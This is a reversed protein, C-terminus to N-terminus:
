HKQRENQADDGAGENALDLQRDETRAATNELGMWFMRHTKGHMERPAQRKASNTNPLKPRLKTVQNSDTNVKALLM